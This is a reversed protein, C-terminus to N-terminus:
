EAECSFWDCTVWGTGRVIELGAEVVDLYMEKRQFRAIQRLHNELVM